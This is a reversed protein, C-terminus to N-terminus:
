GIPFHAQVDFRFLDDFGPFIEISVDIPTSLQIKMITKFLQTLPAIQQVSFLAGDARRGFVNTQGIGPMAQTIGVGVM